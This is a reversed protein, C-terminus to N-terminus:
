APAYTENFEAIAIRYVEPMDDSPSVLMDGVNCKMSGGWSPEFEFSSTTSELGLKTVIEQTVEVGFCQGTASYVKYSSGANAVKGELLKYRDALKKASIIYEEGTPNKIIFDSENATNRTEEGDKTNTIIIEGNIAPRAEVNGQKLYKSGSGQIIPKMISLIQKQTLNEM